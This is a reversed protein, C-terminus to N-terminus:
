VEVTDLGYGISHDLGLNIVEASNVTSDVYSQAEAVTDCM